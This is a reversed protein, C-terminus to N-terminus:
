ISKSFMKENSNRKQARLYNDFVSAINRIFIKGLETVKLTSDSWYILGDQELDNLDNFVEKSFVSNFHDKWKLEYRCMLDLTIRKITLDEESLLFGRIHPFDGNNLSTKYEKISKANQAYAYKIDSIASMGLGILLETQSTNFGMFNRHLRKEKFAHYLDDEPLAFHDMGIEKYGFKLLIDKGKEYLSRKQENTPINQEAFVKQGSQKWPVHAYSYFALRDPQLQRVKEMTYDVCAEDQYPLGYILDYNISKYGIDRAKETLEKVTEYNQFRNIAEQIKPSFDQVGLSMRNFGLDRLIQLHQFTTTNPHAEFSFEHDPHIKASQLIGRLIKKLNQSSFFTPTGGGLHMERIVPPEPFQNRYLEWEKLLANVYPEEVDHNKTIVKTCACYHCLKECYPLHIYISIGKENNSEHFAKLAKELWVDTGIQSYSWFPVTPYSTYRPVPVNYKKILEDKQPM